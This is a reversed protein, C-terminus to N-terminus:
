APPHPSPPSPSFASHGAQVPALAAFSHGLQGALPAGLPSLYAELFVFHRVLGVSVRGHAKIM